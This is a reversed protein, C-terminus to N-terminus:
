FSTYECAFIFQNESLVSFSRGLAVPKIVPMDYSLMFVSVTFDKTSEFYWVIKQCGECQVQLKVGDAVNM